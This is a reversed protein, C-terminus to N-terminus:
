KENLLEGTNFHYLEGEENIGICEQQLAIEILRKLVTKNGLNKNAALEIEEEDTM